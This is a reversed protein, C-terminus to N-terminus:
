RYGIPKRTKGVDGVYNAKPRFIRNDQRQEIVHACWGLVRAVAFIPTFMEPDIGM